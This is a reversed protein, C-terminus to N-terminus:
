LNAWKVYNQDIWIKQKQLILNSLIYTDLYCNFNEVDETTPMFNIM